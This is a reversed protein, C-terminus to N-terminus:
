RLIARAWAMASLSLTVFALTNTPSNSAFRQFESIPAYSLPAISESQRFDADVLVEWGTVEFGHDFNEPLIYPTTQLDKSVVIEENQPEYRVLKKNADVPMSNCATLFFPTILLAKSLKKM